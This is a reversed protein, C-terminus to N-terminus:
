GASKCFLRIYRWDFGLYDTYFNSKTLGTWSGEENVYLRGQYGRTGGILVAQGDTGPPNEIYNAFIGGRCKLYTTLYRGNEKARLMNTLVIADNLSPICEATNEECGDCTIKFKQILVPNSRYGYFDSIGADTAEPFGLERCVVNGENLTFSTQYYDFWSNGNHYMVRGEFKDFGGVLKIAPYGCFRWHASHGDGSAVGIYKVKRVCNLNEHYLPVERFGSIDGVEVNGPTFSVHYERFKTESLVDPTTHYKWTGGHSNCIFGTKNNGQAGLVSVFRNSPKYFSCADRCVTM